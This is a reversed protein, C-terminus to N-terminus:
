KWEFVALVPFHDSPYRGDKHDTLSVASVPKFEGRYLIWDIRARGPSGRFGHFTGAPGSVSGASTWVDGLVETLVKYPASGADTNFDGTVILNGARPLRQRIVAASKERAEADQPRHAFHTNLLRFKRGASTDEFDGWTAMRPLSAGWASSGPTDPTESLWFNGSDLLRLRGKRYFVGMHEDTTNGRRSVGFWAYEPLQQVIYQAQSHFLEQTGMVDPRHRRITDVLLDRRKEWVDPGDSEAPYRVNFTMVRLEDAGHLLFTALLAIIATRM